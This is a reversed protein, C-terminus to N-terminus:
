RRRRYRRYAIGSDFTRTEVPRLDLPETVPTFYPTGAGLVVPHVFQVYEDILDETMATSALDPGSVAIDGDAPQRRLRAIETALDDTALRANGVVSTLTRSFVVKPIARWVRAFELEAAGTMTQEATEWVLMAEYLRRGLLHTAVRRVQGIHFRFVEDDPTGWDIGGTPTATYGDLSVSMSYSVRRTV